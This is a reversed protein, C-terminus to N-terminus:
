NVGLLYLGLWGVMIIGNAVAAATGISHSRDTRRLSIMALLFGYVSLLAGCVSFGIVLIGSIEQGRFVASLLLAVLFMLVSAAALKASVKGGEAEKQTAFSYRYRRAM